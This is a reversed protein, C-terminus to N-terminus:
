LLRFGWLIYFLLGLGMIVAMFAMIKCVKPTWSTGFGSIITRSAKFVRASRLAFGQLCRSGPMVVPFRKSFPNGEEFVVLTEDLGSWDWVLGQHLSLM